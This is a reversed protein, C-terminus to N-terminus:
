QAKLGPATKDNKLTTLVQKFRATDVKPVKKKDDKKDKEVKKQDSSKEIQKFVREWVNLSSVDDRAALVNKELEKNRQISKQKKESYEAYFRDLADKADKLVVKHKDAEKSDRQQVTREFEAAWNLLAESEKPPEPEQPQAFIPDQPLQQPQTFDVPPFLSPNFEPVSQDPQSFPLDNIPFAATASDPLPINAPSISLADLDNSILDTNNTVTDTLPNGFLAADDGLIAQERALFDAMPDDDAM